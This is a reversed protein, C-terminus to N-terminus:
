NFAGANTPYTRTTGTCDTTITSIQAAVLKYGLSTPSPLVVRGTNIAGTILVQSNLGIQSNQGRLEVSQYDAFPLPSFEITVRFTGSYTTDLIEIISTFNDVATMIDNNESQYDTAITGTYSTNDVPYYIGNVIINGAIEEVVKSRLLSLGQTNPSVLSCYYVRIDSSFIIGLCAGNTYASNAQVFCNQVIVNTCGDVKIMYDAPNAIGTDYCQINSITVPDSTEIAIAGEQTEEFICNSVSVTSAGKLLVIPNYRSGYGNPIVGGNLDDIFQCRTITLNTLDPFPNAGNGLRFGGSDVQFIKCDEITINTLNDTGRIACFGHSFTCNRITANDFAGFIRFIMQGVDTAQVVANKFTIGDVVINGGSITFLTLVTNQGDISPFFGTTATTITLTFATNNVVDLTSSITFNDSTNFRLTTDAVLTYTSMYTIMTTISDTEYIVAGTATTILSLKFAYTPPAVKFNRRM